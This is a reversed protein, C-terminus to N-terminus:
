KIWDNIWLCDDDNGPGYGEKRCIGAKAAAEKFCVPATGKLSIKKKSAKATRFASCLLQICSLDIDEIKEMNLQLEQASQLAKNLAERLERAHEITLRGTLTLNKGKEKSKGEIPDVKINVM